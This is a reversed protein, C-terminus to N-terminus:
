LLKYSTGAAKDLHEPRYIEKFCEQARLVHIMHLKQYNGIQLLRLADSLPYRVMASRLYSYSSLILGLVSMKAAM